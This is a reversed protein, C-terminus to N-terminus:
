RIIKENIAGGQKITNKILVWRKSGCIGATGSVVRGYRM